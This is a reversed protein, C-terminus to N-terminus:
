DVDGASPGTSALTRLEAEGVEPVALQRARELKSGAQDGVVLFDTNKSVSGSVKGGHSEILEKAERRTMAPLTGTLVFTLGALTQPAAPELGAEQTPWVGAKRLKKLLEQNRSLKFWDCITSALIPGIGEIAELDSPAAKGLRDLDGFASALASAVTEGVGRVGIAVLLRELPQKRSSDVAELLNEVKTSAFGELSLLDDPQLTYVDAVDHVLGESVLQEAVKIGLGEIDMASRSAFHEVNRVLQAPCAANVCYVAVEGEAQELPEGCSPCEKPRRYRTEDGTRVDEIPGIVYPIVEGARKILVRDGVRIDKEDIFDFNHLTAQRVTVGSVEVPELVAYPTIVGTRGVNVKIDLLDTTVVEAAFKYAIAGRPDKGVVGLDAALEQNDIKIVAGDVEYPLQHRRDELALAADIAAGLDQCHSVEDSVPFGLQRLYALREWQSVPPTESSQVIAYCLLRIPRGATLAPDLQRLAGSATNRPNVYAREGRAELERNMREFDETFIIAEGRVVLASPATADSGGVPIRLPLTRVTRLNSTIDEGAEGDGRTAGLQFVGDIYHLVVTLGDFKPEVTFAAGSVREDLREIREFWARIDEASHANGLSLIAAPHEVRVFRESVEGGVRLTPSDPTRLEPHEAEIARLENFLRDYEADSIVPRNLQHYRYNHERIQDRLTKARAAAEKLEKAMSGDKVAILRVEAARWRGGSTAKAPAAM